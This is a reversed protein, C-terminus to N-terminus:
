STEAEVVGDQWKKKSKVKKAEALWGAERREKTKREEEESTRKVATNGFKPPCALNTKVKRYLGPALCITTTTLKM